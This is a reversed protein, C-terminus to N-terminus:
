VKHKLKHNEEVLKHITKLQDEMHGEYYKVIEVVNKQYHSPLRKAMIMALNNKYKADEKFHSSNM